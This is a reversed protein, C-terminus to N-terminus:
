RLRPIHAVEKDTADLWRVEPSPNGLGSCSLMAGTSNSFDLWPPPEQLFVPGQVHPPMSIVESVFLNFM